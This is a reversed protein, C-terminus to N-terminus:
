KLGLRQLGTFLLFIETKAGESKHADDFHLHFVYFLSVLVIDFMCRYVYVHTNIGLGNNTFGVTHHKVPTPVFCCMSKTHELSVNRHSCQSDYFLLLEDSIVYNCYIM